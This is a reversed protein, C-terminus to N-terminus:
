GESKFDQESWSSTRREVFGIRCVYVFFFLGEMLNVLEVCIIIHIQIFYSLCEIYFLYLVNLPSIM